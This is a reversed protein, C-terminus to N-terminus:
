PKGCIHVNFRDYPAKEIYPCLAIPEPFVTSPDYWKVVECTSIGWLDLPFVAAVVREYKHRLQWWAEVCHRLKIEVIVIKGEEPLFLLGDPQCFSPRAELSDSFRFWPSALYSSGFEGELRLNIAKEYKIGAARAATMRGSQKYNFGPSSCLHAWLVHAAPHFWDPKAPLSLNQGRSSSTTNLM